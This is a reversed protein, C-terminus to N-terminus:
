QKQVWEIFSPVDESIKSPMVKESILKPVMGGASSSVAMVWEIGGGEAEDLEQVHEVSVYRGRVYGKEAPHEVPISIVIFSRLQRATDPPIPRPPLSITLLLFTFDRNSAPFAQHYLTQWVELEGEKIVEIRRAETCAEIYKAENVSHDRLLGREFAEYSPATEGRHVSRRAHWRFGLTEGSGPPPQAASRTSYTHVPAPGGTQFTKGPAWRDSSSSTPSPLSHVLNRAASVAADVYTEYNADTSSRPIADLRAPALSLPSAM